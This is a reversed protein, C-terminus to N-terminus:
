GGVAVCTVTRVVGPVTHIHGTVVDGVISIDDGNILAIIDYPGTVVDVTAIGPLGTLTTAVERTKGVATEILLYAKTAMSGGETAAFKRCGPNAAM